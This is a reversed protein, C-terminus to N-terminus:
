QSIRGDETVVYLNGHSQLGRENTKSFDFQLGSVDLPKSGLADRLGHRTPNAGLGRLGESFVLVSLYGEFSSEDIGVLDAGGSREMAKRFDRAAALSPSHPSPLGSVVGLGRASEKLSKLLRSVGVDSHTLFLGRYGGDRMQRVLAETVQYSGLSLVVDPKAARLTVIQPAVDMNTDGVEVDAVLDVGGAKLGDRLFQMQMLADPSRPHIVALRKLSMPALQKVIRSLVVDDGQRVPFIWERGERTGADLGSAPGILPVGESEILAAIAHVCSQGHTGMLAFVQDRGSSAHLVDRAQAVTETAVSLTDVPVLHIKRGQIGGQRNIEDAAAQAGRLYSIGVESYDSSLPMLVALRVEGSSIGPEAFAATGALAFLGFCACSVLGTVWRSIRCFRIMVPAACASKEFILSVGAFRHSDVDDQM